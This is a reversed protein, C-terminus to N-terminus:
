GFRKEIDSLLTLHETIMGKALKAINTEDLDDAAKLYTTQIALLKKHGEIQAKVFDLDFAEGAKMGQMKEVLAKDKSDLNAMLEADTPAKVDGSPKADPMEVGKLIDAITEQEAIEFEAFQKLLVGKVKPQAM